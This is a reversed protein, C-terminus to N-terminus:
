MDILKINSGSKEIMDDYEKLIKQIKQLTDSTKVPIDQIGQKEVADWVKKVTLNEVSVAPQYAYSDGESLVTESVLGTKILQELSSNVLQSPIELEKTLCEVTCPKEGKKFRSALYQMVWVVILKRSYPSIRSYDPHFGRTGVNEYAYSVEAGFLLCL